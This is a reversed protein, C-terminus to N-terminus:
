SSPYDLTYGFMNAMSETAAFFLSFVSQSAFLLVVVLVFSSFTMTFSSKRRLLYILKTKQSLVVYLSGILLGILSIGGSTSRILDDIEISTIEKSLFYPASVIM